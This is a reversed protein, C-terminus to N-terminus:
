EDPVMYEAWSVHLIRSYNRLTVSWARNQTFHGVTPPNASEMLHVPFTDGDIGVESITNVDRLICPVHTAGAKRVGVTRHFGNHLYCRGNYRVVHVFPMSSHFQIGAISI